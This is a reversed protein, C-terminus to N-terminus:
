RRRDAVAAPREDIIHRDGSGDYGTRYQRTDLLFLEATAGLSLKKYIRYRDSAMVMRPLWEFAARYAAIRQAPTPPPNEDTYNNEVEHDDWIHAMPHLRHLERLAPDARYRRYKRRYTRLDVAEIGDQRLAGPVRGREYIYDGLFLYLDLDQAAADAHPSFNGYCYHQCSSFGIRLNDASGPAPQTRTRGVPSVHNSSQWAYYYDRAPELGGVRAKLTWDVGRGTPVRTVAVVDDLGADRAVILRAGSRPHDTSLRSWLTVAHRPRSGRHSATASPARAM